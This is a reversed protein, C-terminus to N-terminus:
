RFCQSDAQCQKLKSTLVRDSQISGPQGDLVENRRQDRARLEGHLCRSQAAGHMRVKNNTVKDKLRSEIAIVSYCVMAPCIKDHLQHCNRCNYFTIQLQLIPITCNYNYIQFQLLPFTSFLHTFFTFNQSHIICSLDSFIPQATTGAANQVASVYSISSIVLVFKTL